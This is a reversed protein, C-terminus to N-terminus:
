QKIAKPTSIPLFSEKKQSGRFRKKFPEPCRIQGPLLYALHIGTALFSDKDRANGRINTDVGYQKDNGYGDFVTYSRGDVGIYTYDSPVYDTELKRNGEKSRDHMARALDDDAFTGLDIYTKSVDDLYDTILFRMNVEFSLDWRQGIRKRFGFGIPIALQFKSYPADYGERGQGETGLPRLNVLDGGFAEPANSQPNHYFVGLGFTVYPIVKHPRDYFVESHGALDFLGSVTLEYIENRFSLNRIYRFQDHSSTKSASISDAGTLVGYAFMVRGTLVRSYRKQAFVSFNGRTYRIDTSYFGPFPTIDGFYNMANLGFGISAYGQRQKNWTWSQRHPPRFSRKQAFIDTIQM